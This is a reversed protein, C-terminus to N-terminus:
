SYYKVMFSSEFGANLYELLKTNLEKEDDMISFKLNRNQAIKSYDTCFLSLRFLELNGEYILCIIPDLNNCIQEIHGGLLTGVFIFKDIRKIKHIEQYQHDPFYSKFQNIFNSLKAFHAETTSQINSIDAHVRNRLMSAITLISNDTDKKSESIAKKNFDNQNTYLYLDHENDYVNFANIDDKYELFLREHYLNQEIAYSLNNIRDFLPKDHSELFTLNNNYIQLANEQINM